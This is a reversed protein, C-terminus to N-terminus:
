LMIVLLLRMLMLSRRGMLLLLLLLLRRLILLWLVVHGVAVSVFGSRLRAGAPVLVVRVERGVLLVVLMWAVRSGVLLM